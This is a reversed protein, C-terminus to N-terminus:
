LSTDEIPKRESATALRPRTLSQSPPAPRTAHQFIAVPSFHHAMRRSTPRPLMISPPRPGSEPHDEPFAFSSSLAEMPSMDSFTASSAGPHRGAADGLEQSLRSFQAANYGSQAFDLTVLLLNNRELGLNLNRLHSLYGCFLGASSMLVLSLAVQSAVLSQRVAAPVQIRRHAFGTAARVSTGNELREYRTGSWV